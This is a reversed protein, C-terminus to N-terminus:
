QDPEIPPIELSSEIMGLRDGCLLLRREGPELRFAHHLLRHDALRLGIQIGLGGAGRKCDCIGDAIALQSRGGRCAASHRAPM